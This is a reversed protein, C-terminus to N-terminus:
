EPLVLKHINGIIFTIGVSGVLALSSAKKDTNIECGCNIYTESETAKGIGKVPNGTISFRM